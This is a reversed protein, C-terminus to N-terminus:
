LNQLYDLLNLLALAGLHQQHHLPRHFVCLSITQVAMSWPCTWLQHMFYQVGKLIKLYHVARTVRTLICMTYIVDYM